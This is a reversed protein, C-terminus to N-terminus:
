QQNISKPAGNLKNCEEVASQKNSYFDILEFHKEIEENTWPTEVWCYSGHETRLVCFRNGQKKM